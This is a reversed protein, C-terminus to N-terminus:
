KQYLNVVITMSRKQNQGIHSDDRRDGGGASEEERTRKEDTEAECDRADRARARSKWSGLTKLLKRPSSLIGM